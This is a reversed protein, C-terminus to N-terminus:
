KNKPSLKRILIQRHNLIAVSLFIGIANALLDLLDFNRNVFYLQSVEELAALIFVIFAGWPVKIVKYVFLKHKFAIITLGSLMGFLLTHSIKDGYPIASILNFLALQNGLNAQTIVWALLLFFIIAPTVRYM